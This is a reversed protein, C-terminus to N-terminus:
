TVIFFQSGNTNPGANAMAIVGRVVKQTPSIEDQFTYGPGGTGMQARNNPDKSLPDGGQIMFDPIVRHFTTNDYFGSRALQVFNGVTLPTATGDLQLEITGLSTDITAKVMQALPVITPSPSPSPSPSPMASPEASDTPAVAISETRTQIHWLYLGGAAVLFLIIVGWMVITRM